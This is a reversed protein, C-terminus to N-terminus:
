QSCFETIILVGAQGAVGTNAGGTGGSCTGGAGSGHGTGPFGIQNFNNAIAQGGFGM